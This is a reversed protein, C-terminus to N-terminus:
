RIVIKKTKNLQDNGIKVLYVGSATSGLYLEYEYKGNNYTVPVTVVRQGITSFVDISLNGFSRPTNLTVLVKGPENQSQILTYDAGEFEDEPVSLVSDIINVTYDHTEGYAINACPDNVDGPSSTTDLCRARLVHPGLNANTPITINFNTLTGGTPFEGATLVQEGAEFQLNDNFDIWISIKEANAVYPPNTNADWNQQAQVVHTNNGASRDLDTSMSTRDAYGQPSGAPETNCGNGGDDADITGLIFKKIGDVNCGSTTTPICGTHNVIKCFEDNTALQDGVLNTKACINYQGTTSLDATTPFSYSATAGAAIPGPVTGNVPTGANITYQIPINSQANGGFNQVTVTVTSTASLGTGSTPATIAVVGTDNGLLHQVSKAACNNNVDEDGSLTTCAEVNYTTGVSSLDVTATFTFNATAGSALPGAFTETAITGGNLKLEVPINSQSQTGFNKLTVQVTETATLGGATSPDVIATVGVDTNFDNGIKFSYIRCKRPSGTYESTVWFTLDDNPDRTCQGYDGYRENSAATTGAIVANEGITTGMTGLAENAMRGTYFLSPYTTTGSKTYGLGINGQKDMGICGMWVSESGTPDTFTGEQHLTWTAGADTSRMEAWRIGSILSGDTIEVPWNLIITEYSGFKYWHSMNMVAGMIVDIRQSTGPQAINAFGGTFVADFASVNIEQKASITSNATNAWDLTLNWLGIHDTSVGSFADDQYYLVKAPGTAAGAAESHVPMPATFGSGALGPPTFAVMEATNDGALMKTRNFAKIKSAGDFNGACVYSDGWIGFHPYDNGHGPSFQYVYYAGTPDPTQSIAILFQASASTPDKFQTIMWRDAERDYVVVPDGAGAGLPDSLNKPFGAAITGTKSYVAWQGNEMHVIHNPGVAMSPDPPSVDLNVGDWQVIPARTGHETETLRGAALPDKSTPSKGATNIWDLKRQRKPSLLEESTLVGHKPVIRGELKARDEATAQPYDRMAKTIYFNKCVQVLDAKREVNVSADQPVAIKQAYGFSFAVLAAILMLYNRKMVIINITKYLPALSLLFKVNEFNDLLFSRM